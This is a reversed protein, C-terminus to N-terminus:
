KVEKLKGNKDFVNEKITFPKTPVSDDSEKCKCHDCNILPYSKEIDNKDCKCSIKKWLPDLNQNNIKLIKKM